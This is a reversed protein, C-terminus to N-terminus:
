LQFRCRSRGPARSASRCGLAGQPTTPPASRAAPPRPSTASSRWASARDRCDRARAGLPLLPRLRAAPGRSRNGPRSGPGLRRRRRGAGRDRPGASEVQRRQRASELDRARGALRGGARRGARARASPPGRPAQAPGPRRGRRRDRRPSRAGGARARPRADRALDILDGVLATLEGLQEVVDALIARRESDTLLDSQALVEANTRISALPTRLEHSADAVLQRQAGVSDELAELMQNFSRALAALEDQGTADIRRSLDRTTAIEEAARRLRQVPAVAARSVLYGLGGGLIIGAVCVIALIVALQRLNSDVDDLSRAVEIAQGHGYKM